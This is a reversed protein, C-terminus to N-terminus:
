TVTVAILVPVFVIVTEAATSETAHSLIINM